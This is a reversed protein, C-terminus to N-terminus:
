AKGKLEKVLMNAMQAMSILVARNDRYQDPYKTANGAFTGACFQCLWRPEKADPANYPPGRDYPELKVGHSECSECYDPKADSM